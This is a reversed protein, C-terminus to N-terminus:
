EWDCDWEDLELASALLEANVRRTAKWETNEQDVRELYAQHRAKQEDTLFKHGLIVQQVIRAKSLKTATKHCHLKNWATSGIFLNLQVWDNATKYRCTQEEPHLLDDEWIHNQGIASGFRSYKPLDLLLMRNLLDQQSMEYFDAAFKLREAAARSVRVCVKRRAVKFVKKGDERTVLKRDRKGEQKM